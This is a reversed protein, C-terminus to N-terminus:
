IYNRSTCIEPQPKEFTEESEGPFKQSLMEFLRFKLDESSRTYLFRGEPISRRITEYFNALMKCTSVAEMMLAIFGISAALM